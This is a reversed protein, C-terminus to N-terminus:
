DQKAGATFRARNKELWDLWWAADRGEQWRVGTLEGLAFHGIAYDLTGSTDNAIVEILRPVITPDGIGALASAAAYTGPPPAIGGEEDMAAEDPPTASIRVLHDVIAPQAWACDERDLARFYADVTRPQAREPDLVVPLVHARLWGEDAGLTKSWSLATRTAEIDDHRLATALGNLGGSDRIVAALDVGVPGGADLDLNDLSVLREALENPPLTALDHALERASADLVESLPRGSWRENWALYADYDLTFDRFAYGKLYTFARSQVSLEADTAALHLLPLAHPHGDGFVFPKLAQEKVAKTLHPWCGTMVARAEDPPLQAIEGAVNWGHRWDDPAENFRALWHALPDVVETAPEAAGPNAPTSEVRLEDTDEPEVLGSGQRPSRDPQAGVLTPDGTPAAREADGRGDDLLGWLGLGAAVAAAGMLIATKTM